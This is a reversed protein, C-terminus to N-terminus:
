KDVEDVVTFEEGRKGAERIESALRYNKILLEGKAVAPAGGDRKHCMAYAQEWGMLDFQTFRDRITESDNYSVLWRHNVTSVDKAFGAHDFNKHFVGKRGYVVNRKTEYPPDMYIFVGAGEVATVESYDLNTIKVGELIESIVKLKEINRLSFNKEFGTPAYSFEIGSWSCKNMVYYAAARELDSTTDDLLLGEYIKRLARGEEPTQFQKRYWRVKEVLAEQNSQLVRWFPILNKNIDNIWYKKYPFLQKLYITVSGGGIFPERFEEYDDPIIDKLVKNIAKTKGGPYQLPVIIKPADIGHLIM